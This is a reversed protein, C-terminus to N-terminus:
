VLLDRLRVPLHQVVKHATVRVARRSLQHEQGVEGELQPGPGLLGPARNPDAWFCGEEGTTSRQRV